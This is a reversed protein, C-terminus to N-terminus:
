VPQPAFISLLVDYDVPKVLHHDFGAERSRRLDEPQGYGSLAIILTDKCCEEARLRKIVEYGDMGPLGIDLLVVEPRQARAVEIASKGDRAVRVDHGLRKLLRALGSANDDDDDIVLVRSGQRAVRPLGATMRPKQAASEALAPLRVTFESGRGPGESAAFVQGGHLEVLRRVLMLGIGLGGRARDHAPDIQAFLGFITQLAEAPIGVGTDGVRVVVDGGELTGTLTIRGAEDTYKAANNLLNALVQQLRVPDADAPLSSPPLSITLAQRKEDVLPRVVEVARAVVDRVDLPERRLVIKGEGIRAVDLLDDVLGALLRSQRDIAGFGWELDPDAPSSVKFLDVANRIAALPNRLEHALVVLFESKRRDAEKLAEEARRRDTVERNSGRMGLYEGQESFVPQCAQALWRVTGDRHVIRFEFEVCSRDATLVRMREEFLPRDESHVLRLLLDPDALFEAPKYGSVRECSPSVYLYRGEPARWFEFDYTNEAVIRYTRESERLAAVVQKIESIEEVVSIFYDPQGQPTRVLAVTLNIWVLSRDKRIYRKEMAYTTIEGALLQRVYALDTELDDPHTIEQFTLGILEEHSYGVIDCLKRNVRLWRGDPAVLAMGVAAQEFTARFRGESERAAEEAQKLATFDHV